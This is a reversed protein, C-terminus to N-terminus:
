RLFEEVLTYIEFFKELLEITKECAIFSNPFHPVKISSFNTIPVKDPKEVDIVSKLFDKIFRLADNFDHKLGYSEDNIDNVINIMSSKFNSDNMVKVITTTIKKELESEPKFANDFDKIREAM